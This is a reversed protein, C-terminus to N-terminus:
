LLLEKRQLYEHLAEKMVVSLTCESAPLKADIRRKVEQDLRERLDDSLHVGVMTPRKM